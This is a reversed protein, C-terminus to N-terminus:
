PVESSFVVDYFLHCQSNKQSPDSKSNLFDDSYLKAFLSGDLFQVYFVDFILTFM